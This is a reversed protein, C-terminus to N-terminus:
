QAHPPAICSADFIARGTVRPREPHDTTVFNSDHFVITSGTMNNVLQASGFLETKAASVFIGDNSVGLKSSLPGVQFLVAGDSLTASINDIHIMGGGMINFFTGAGNVTLNRYWHNVSQPNNLTIGTCGASVDLCVNDFRNESTLQTGEFRILESANALDVDQLRLDFVRGGAFGALYLLKGTIAAGNGRSGNIVLNRMVVSRAQDVDYFLWDEPDTYRILVGKYSEGELTFGDLSLGSPCVPTLARRKNIKYIGNPFRIPPCREIIGGRVAGRHVSHAIAAAVADSDDHIGDGYAGFDMPNLATESPWAPPATAPSVGMANIAFLAMVGLTFAIVLQGLKKLNPM